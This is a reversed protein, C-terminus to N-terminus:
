KASLENRMQFRGIRKGDAKGERYGKAYFVFASWTGAGLCCLIFKLTSVM